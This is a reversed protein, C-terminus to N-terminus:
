FNKYNGLGPHESPNSSNQRSSQKGNVNVSTNPEPLASSNTSGSNVTEHDDKESIIFLLRVIQTKDRSFEQPVFIMFSPAQSNAEQETSDMTGPTSHSHSLPPPTKHELSSLSSNPTTTYSTKLEPNTFSVLVYNASKLENLLNQISSKVEYKAALELDSILSACFGLAKMCRKRLQNMEEKFENCKLNADFSNSDLSYKHKLTHPACTESNHSSNNSEKRKLSSELEQNETDEQDSYDNDIIISKHQDEDGDLSNDQCMEMSTVYEMLPQKHKTDIYSLNHCLSKHIFCCMTCFRKAYMDESSTVFYLNNKCFDWEVKLVNLAKSLDLNAILDHM